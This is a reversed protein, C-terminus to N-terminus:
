DSKASAGKKAKQEDRIQKTQRKKQERKPENPTKKARRLRM